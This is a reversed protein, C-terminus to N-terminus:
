GQYSPLSPGSSHTWPRERVTVQIWSDPRPPPAPLPDWGPTPAVPIDLDRCFSQIDEPYRLTTSRGDRKATLSFPLGWHYRFDHDRLLTLLQQLSRRQQLTIWSLDPFLQIPAGDFDTTRMNCVKRIIEEIPHLQTDQM